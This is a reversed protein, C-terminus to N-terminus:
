STCRTTPSARLQTAGKRTIQFSDADISVLTGKVVTGDVETIKVGKGIGRGTLKQQLNASDIPTDTAAANAFSTTTQCLYSGSLGPPVLADNLDYFDESCLLQLRM